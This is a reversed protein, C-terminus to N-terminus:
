IWLSELVEPCKNAIEGMQQDSLHDIDHCIVAFYHAEANEYSTSIHPQYAYTQSLFIAKSYHGLNLLTTIEKRSVKYGIEHMAKIAELTYSIMMPHDHSIITECLGHEKIYQVLDVSSSNSNFLKYIWIIKSYKSAKAKDIGGCIGDLWDCNM